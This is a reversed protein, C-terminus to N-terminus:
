FEYNFGGLLMFPVEDTRFFERSKSNLLNKGNASLHLNKIVEYSINMNLIVKGNMHDMGRIGDRFILNSLHSYTQSSYYYTNLNFNWRSDPVYNVSAGGFVAPTSKIIEEGGMNSYIHLQEGTDPTVGYPAYNKMKTQQLTIFPKVQIRKSTYNLSVTVGLQKLILPLNTPILPVITVTDLGRSERYSKNEVLASFHKGTISFLEVDINIKSSIKSRYGLEIMNTTLLRLNKNGQLAMRTFNRFGSPFYALTQNIYTDFVNSSRPAQSYVARVLNEKNIKFTTALQYSPYTTDPYNFKNLTIGGIVRLKNNFLNYDARISAAKSVIHGEANFIGTKEITDSYKTDDYVATRYAVGPKISLKGITYNYELNADITHFDYKNGPDHDTIQTGSNYSFQGTLNKISLRLDAYKSDSLATSLPTVENETSVKQVMSHQLGASINIGIKESPDYSVFINGAYKKMALGPDPYRTKVNYSTDENFGVFYSPQDLWTNRNFEFYSSQTRNRHQYNASVITSWQKGKYGLSLNNIFTRYSGQQNNAVAYIGQKKAQRTIINIVGNVANPGYLAAAPGRVVEIKEVDNIDIPLTEWFTGGKLYSYIPRNDIMVLTTTNSTVDFAANPPVNDMGRLHIDYNGNSQERVIIGPVLRLAEMISTCGTRHIDEKTVVSASLPSEFLLESKKSASVIKVNLLDKLSLGDYHNHRATDVQGNASSFALAVISVLFFFKQFCHNM